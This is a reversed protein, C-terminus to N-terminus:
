AIGKDFFGDYTTNGKDDMLGLRKLRREQYFELTSMLAQREEFFRLCSDLSEKEGLRILLAAEERSGKAVAGSRLLATDEAISTPYGALAARAGQIMTACVAKENGESIPQCVHGWVDARFLSELLFADSGQMQMLRLFGMMAEPPSGGPALAFTSSQALGNAELIDLKDDLYRETDPLSLTLSYGPRTNITDLVGYDLMVDSDPKAAGFDMCLAEGKRIPRTAEVALARGRGFLGAAKVKWTTNPARRHSVADALPVLATDAGDLPAHLRARVTGVTWMFREPTLVSPGFASPARGPLVASVETFKSTFFAKYGMVSQLLQTGKIMGLQEENWFLPSDLQEPLSSIFAAWESKGSGFKEALLILAIQLWPEFGAVASALPHKKVAEISLWAADGVQLITEGAPVDKAAVLITQGGTIDQEVSLKDVAVGKSAVWTKLAELSQVTTSQQAVAQTKVPRSLSAQQKL